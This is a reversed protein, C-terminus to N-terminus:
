VGWVRRDDDYETQVARVEEFGGMQERVKLGEFGVFGSVFQLWKICDKHLCPLRM